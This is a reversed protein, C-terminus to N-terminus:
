SWKATNSSWQYWLERSDYNAATSALKSRNWTTSSWIKCYQDRSTPKSLWKTLTKLVTSKEPSSKQNFRIGDSVPFRL